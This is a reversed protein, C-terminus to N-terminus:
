IACRTKGEMKGSEAAIESIENNRHIWLLQGPLGPYLGSTGSNLKRSGIGAKVTKSNTSEDDKVGKKSKCTSVHIFNPPVVKRFRAMEDDPIRTILTLARDVEFETAAEDVLTVNCASQLGGSFEVGIGEDDCM